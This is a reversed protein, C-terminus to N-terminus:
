VEKECKINTLVYDWSTGWHTVGWVYINMKENYWVTEETYDQLIQAGAASIIYFQYFEYYEDTEEDYDTSNVLEWDEYEGIKLVENCLVCDFSKALTGYDVRGHERGYRSIENGCFYKGFTVDRM